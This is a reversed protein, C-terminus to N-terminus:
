DHQGKGEGAEGAGPRPKTKRGRGPSELKLLAHAIVVDAGCHHQPDLPAHGFFVRPVCFVLYRKPFADRAELRLKRALSFLDLRDEVDDILSAGCCCGFPM